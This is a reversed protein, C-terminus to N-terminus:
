LTAYLDGWRSLFSENVTIGLGPGMLLPARGNMDFSIDKEAIDENFIIKSFSGELYVHDQCLAALHRGAASLIATEGVHCGIQCFIGNERAYNILTLCKLLGGCKSLRINFGQCCGRNILQEADDMTCLSEDAIVPVMSLHAVEHMWDLENKPVPQEIASISLPQAMELFSIAERGSFAGNADARIDAEPGYIERLRRILAIGAETENVKAKIYKMNMKKYQDVLILFTAEDLIPFVASYTFYSNTSSEAFLRWLPKNQRKAWLDLCALELACWAAPNENALVTSGLSNLRGKIEIDTEFNREHIGEAISTAAKLSDELSEGTVYARPAGEGYGKTGNEDEM